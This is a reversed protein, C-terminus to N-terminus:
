LALRKIMKQLGYRSVGLLRAARTQNGETRKMAEAILRRELADVHTRMDLDDGGVSLASAAAQAAATAPSSTGRDKMPDRMTLGSQVSGLVLQRRVMNELERVNGPFREHQLTDLWQPDIPAAPGERNAFHHVLAPLDELRDRLPPVSVDVVALRYFLDERFAGSAVRAQLDHHTAAVIRVDVPRTRGDGVRRVERAQLVRLLKAQMALPMEAVEDLFLTGGDALEFLGRHDRHAGTFAGKAHGFLVSEILAEPVAGCNEAVLPGSARDSLAHIARAVLEKGTGSEGLILVPVDSPAVRRVRSRMARMVASDGVLATLAATGAEAPLSEKQQAMQVELAETRRALRHRVRQEQRLATVRELSAAFVQVLPEIVRASAEDLAHPRLRDDVYLIHASSAEGAASRLSLDPLPLALVSRVQMAHVSKASKLMEHTLADTAWVRSQTELVRKVVSTSFFRADRPITGTDARAFPVSLPDAARVVMAREAGSCRLVADLFTSLVAQITRARSIAVLSDVLVPETSTSTESTRTPGAPQGLARRYTPMARMRARQSLSVSDLAPELLGRLERGFGASVEPQGAVRAHEMAAGLARVRMGFAGHERLLAVAAMSLSVAWAGDGADSAHRAYTLYLEARLEDDLSADATEPDPLTAFLTRAADVAGLQFLCVCVRAGVRRRLADPLDGELVSEAWRRVDGTRGLVLAAEMRAVTAFARVDADISPERLAEELAWDAELADGSLALATGLNYLARAGDRAAGVELLVRVGRRLLNTASGLEGRDLLATGYNVVCHGHLVADPGEAASREARAFASLARSSAGESRHVLALVSCLRARSVAADEGLADVWRSAGDRLVDRVRGDVYLGLLLATEVGYVALHRLDPPLRSHLRRAEEMQAAGFPAHAEILARSRAFDRQDFASRALLSRAVRLMPSDALSSGLLQDLCARVGAHDGARRLYDARRLAWYFGSEAGLRHVPQRDAICLAEIAPVFRGRSAEYHAVADAWIATAVEDAELEWAGKLALLAAAEDHRGLALMQVVHARGREAGERLHGEAWLLRMDLAARSARIGDPLRSCLADAAEARVRENMQALQAHAVDRRVSMGGDEVLVLGRQRLEDLALAEDPSLDEFPCAVMAVSLRMLWTAETDTLEGFLQEAEAPGVAFGARAQPVLRRTLAVRLRGPLGATQQMLTRLRPLSLPEDLVGDALDKVQEASLPMLAVSPTDGETHSQTGIIAYRLFRGRARAERVRAEAEPLRPDDSGLVVVADVDEPVDHAGWLMPPNPVVELGLAGGRDSEARTAVAEAQKQLEAVAEEVLRRRGVGMPGTVWVVPAAKLHLVLAQLESERGTLPPHQLWAVQDRRSLRVGSVSVRIPTGGLHAERVGALFAHAEAGDALRTEPDRDLLPGLAQRLVQSDLRALPRQPVAGPGVVAGSTESGRHVSWGFQSAAAERGAGLSYLDFLTAGLAYVDSTFRPRGLWAEPAMYAPTGTLRGVSLSSTDGVLRALGFDVLTAEEPDGGVVLNQPKIDGHVLGARHVAELGQAVAVGLSLVWRVRAEPDTVALVAEDATAGLALAQLLIQTGRAVSFPAGSPTGLRLLEYVRAVRPHHVQRVRAFETSVWPAVSPSVAKLARRPRDSRAEDVVEFVTASGGEGLTRVYRFRELLLAEAPDHASQVM